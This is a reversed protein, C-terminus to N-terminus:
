VHKKLDLKTNRSLNKESDKSRTKKLAQSHDSIFTNFNVPSLTETNYSICVLDNIFSLALKSFEYM